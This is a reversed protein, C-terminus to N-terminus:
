RWAVRCRRRACRRRHSRASNGTRPDANFQSLSGGNLNTVYVSRGDPSIAVGSAGAGSPVSPPDMPVPVGGSGLRYQFVTGTEQAATYLARGDPTVVVGHAGIGAPVSPQASLGLLAGDSQRVRYAYVRGDGTASVYAFRGDSTFTFHQPEDGTAESPPDLPSPAGGPVTLGFQPLSGPGASAGNAVYLARPAAKAPGAPGAFTLALTLVSFAIAGFTAAPRSFHNRHTM